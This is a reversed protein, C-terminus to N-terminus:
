HMRMEVLIKECLRWPIRLERLALFPDSLFVIELSVEKLQRLTKIDQPHLPDELSVLQCEKWSGIIMETVDTGTCDPETPGNFGYVIEEEANPIPEGKSNQLPLSSSM